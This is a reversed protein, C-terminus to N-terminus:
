FAGSTHLWSTLDDLTPERLPSVEGIVGRMRLQCTRNNRTTARPKDAGTNREKALSSFSYRADLVEGEEM